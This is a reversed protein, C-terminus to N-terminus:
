FNPVIITGMSQGLQLVALSTFLLLLASSCEGFDADRHGTYKGGEDPFLARIYDRVCAPIVIRNGAGLYGYEAATFARYLSHRLANPKMDSEFSSATDDLMKQSIALSCPDKNCQCCVMTIATIHISLSSNNSNNHQSPLQPPNHIEFPSIKSSFRSKNPFRPFLSINKFCFVTLKSM